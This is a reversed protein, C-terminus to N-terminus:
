KASGSEDNSMNDESCGSEDELPEAQSLKILSQILQERRKPIQDFKWWKSVTPLNLKSIESIQAYFLFLCLFVM